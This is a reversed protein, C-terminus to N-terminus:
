AVARPHWVEVHVDRGGAEDLLERLVGLACHGCADPVSRRVKRRSPAPNPYFRVATGHRAMQCHTCQGRDIRVLAVVWAGLQYLEAALSVAANGIVDIRPLPVTAVDPVAYLDAVALRRSAVLDAARVASARHRGGGSTTESSTL